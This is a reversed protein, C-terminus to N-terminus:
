NLLAGRGFLQGFQGGGKVKIFKFQQKEVWQKIKRAVSETLLIHGIDPFHLHDARHFKAIADADGKSVFMDLGGSVILTPIQTPYRIHALVPFAKMIVKTQEPILCSYYTEFLKDSLGGLILKKALHRDDIKLVGTAIGKAFKWPFAMVIKSLSRLGIGKPGTPAILVCLQVKCPYHELLKQAVYGGFSHGILLQPNFSDLKNRLEEYNLNPWDIDPTLFEDGPFYKKFENWIFSRTWLGHLALIKM